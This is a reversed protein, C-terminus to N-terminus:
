SSALIVHAEAQPRPRTQQSQPGQHGSTVRVGTVGGGGGGRTLAGAGGETVARLQHGPINLFNM